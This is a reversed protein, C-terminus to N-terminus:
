YLLGKTSCTGLKLIPLTTSFALTSTDNTTLSLAGAGLGLGFVFGEREVPKKEINTQAVATTALMTFTFILIKRM